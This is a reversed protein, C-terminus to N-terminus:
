SLMLFIVDAAADYALFSLSWSSLNWNVASLLSHFVLVKRASNCIMGRLLLASERFHLSLMRSGCLHKRINHPSRQLCLCGTPCSPFAGGCQLGSSNLLLWAQLTWTMYTVSFLLLCSRNWCCPLFTKLVSSPFSHWSHVCNQSGWTVKKETM